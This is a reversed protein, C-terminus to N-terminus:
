KRRSDSGLSPHQVDTLATKSREMAEMLIMAIETHDNEQAGQLPTDGNENLAHVDAYKAILFKM